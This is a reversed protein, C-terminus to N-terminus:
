PKHIAKASSVTAKEGDQHNLIPQNDNNRLEAPRMRRAANTDYCIDIVKIFCAKHYAQNCSILYYYSSIYRSLRIKNLWTILFPNYYNFINIGSALHKWRTYDELPLNINFSPILIV